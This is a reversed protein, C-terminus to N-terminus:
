PDARCHALGDRLDRDDLGHGILVIRTVRPEDPGWPRDPLTDLSQRVGQFVFRRDDDAFAVIGKARLLREDNEILVQRLWPLFRTRELPRDVRLCVSGVGSRHRAAIRGDRPSRAGEDTDPDATATAAELGTTDLDGARCGFLVEVPVDGAIGRHRVATPNIRGVEAEIAALATRDVLDTKNIVVVDASAIQEAAEPGDVLDLPLHHADVVCVIGDLRLRRRLDADVLLTQAIPLPDALGTTEILIGDFDGPRDLLRHLLRVLDGRVRCCICGGALEFVEEASAMVLSGDIGVDGFENVVVVWRRDGFGALIRNLLTTKGAGLFGTVITVPVRPPAAERRDDLPRGASAFLHDTLSSSADM